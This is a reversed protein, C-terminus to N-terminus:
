NIPNVGKGIGNIVTDELEQKKKMYARMIRKEMELASVTEFLISYPMQEREREEKKCDLDFLSAQQRKHLREGREMTQEVERVKGQVRGLRGMASRAVLENRNRAFAKDKGDTPVNM